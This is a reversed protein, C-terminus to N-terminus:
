RAGTNICCGSAGGGGVGLYRGDYTGDPNVRVSLRVREGSQYRVVCSWPNGLPGSRGRSCTAAVGSGKGTRPDPATRVVPEVAAATLNPPHRQDQVFQADSGRDALAVATGAIATGVCAGIPILERLQLSGIM